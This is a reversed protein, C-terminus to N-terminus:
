TTINFETHRVKEDTERIDVIDVLRNASEWDLYLLAIYNQLYEKDSLKSAFINKSKLFTLLPNISRTQSDLFDYIDKDDPYYDSAKFYKAM